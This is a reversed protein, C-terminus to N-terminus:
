LEMRKRLEAVVPAFVERGDATLSAVEGPKPGVAQSTDPVYSKLLLDEGCKSKVVERLAEFHKAEGRGPRGRWLRVHCAVVALLDAPCHENLNQLWEVMRPVGAISGWDLFTPILVHDSCAVANVVSTTVRPPCDFIVLDYRDFVEPRHLHRRFQYRAEVAPDLFFRAQLRFDDTALSDNALIVDVGPVGNMPVALATLLEDSPAETLLRNVFSRNRIQANVLAPDVTARGLTGQQDIDILLVRLPRKGLALGAALNAALTTKGVGGKFNLLTLFRTKRHSRSLLGPIPVACPRHWVGAESEKERRAEELATAALQNRLRANEAKLEDVRKAREWTFLTFALWGILFFLLIGAQATPHLRTLAEGLPSAFFPLGVLLTLLALLALVYVIRLLPSAKKWHDRVARLATSVIEM